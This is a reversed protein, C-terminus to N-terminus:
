SCHDGVAACSVFSDISTPTQRQPFSFYAIPLSKTTPTPQNPKNNNHAHV